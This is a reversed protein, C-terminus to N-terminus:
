KLFLFESEGVVGANQMAEALEPSAVFDRAKAEDAAAFLLVVDSADDVNQWVHLDTLGAQKRPGSHADFAKKWSAFDAVRHRITLHTM